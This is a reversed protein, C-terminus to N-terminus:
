PEGGPRKSQLPMIQILQLTVGDPDRVYAFRGGRGAGTPVNQHGSAGARNSTPVGASTAGIFEPIARWIAM